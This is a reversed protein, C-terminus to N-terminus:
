PPPQGPAAMKIPFLKRTEDVVLAKAPLKSIAIQMPQTLFGLGERLWNRSFTLTLPTSESATQDLGFDRYLRGSGKWINEFRCGSERPYTLQPLFYRWLRNIKMLLM